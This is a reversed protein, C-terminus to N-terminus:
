MATPSKLLQHTPETGQREGRPEGGTAASALRGRGFDLDLLRDRGPVSSAVMLIPGFGFYRNAAAM